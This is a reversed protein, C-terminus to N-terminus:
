KIVLGIARRNHPFSIPLNVRDPYIMLEIDTSGSIIKSSYKHKWKMSENYFCVGSIIITEIIEKTEFIKSTLKMHKEIDFNGKIDVCDDALKKLDISDIRDPCVNAKNMIMGKIRMRELLITNPLHDGYMDSRKSSILTFDAIKFISTNFFPISIDYKILRLSLSLKCNHTPYIKLVRGSQFILKFTEKSSFLGENLKAAIVLEENYNEVYIDM